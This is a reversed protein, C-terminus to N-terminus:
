SAKEEASATLSEIPVNAVRSIKLALTVDLNPQKGNVLRSIVSQSAGVTEAFAAQSIGTDALYAALDTYIRKVRM